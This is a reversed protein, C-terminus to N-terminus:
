AAVRVKTLEDALSRHQYKGVSAVFSRYFDHFATAKAEALLYLLAAGVTCGAAVAVRWRLHSAQVHM